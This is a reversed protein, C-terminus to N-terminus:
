KASASDPAFTGAGMIGSLEQFEDRLRGSACGLVKRFDENSKIDSKVDSLFVKIQAWAQEVGVSHLPVEAIAPLPVARLFDIREPPVVFELLKKPYGALLSWVTLERWLSNTDASIQQAVWESWSDPSNEAWSRCLDTLCQRLCPRETFKAKAGPATLSELIHQLNDATIQKAAMSAGFGAVLMAEQFSGSKQKPPVMTLLGQSLVAEDTLWDPVAVEWRAALLTRPTQRRFSAQVGTQDAFQELWRYHPEQRVWVEIGTATAMCQQLAQCARAYGHDTDVLLVEDPVVQKFDGVHSIVIASNNSAADAM